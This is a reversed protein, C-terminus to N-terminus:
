RGYPSCSFRFTAKLETRAAIKRVAILTTMPRIVPLQADQRAGSVRIPGPAAITVEERDFEGAVRWILDVSVAVALNLVKRREEFGQKKQDGTRPDDIFGDL